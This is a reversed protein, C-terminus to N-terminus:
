TESWPVLPGFTALAVGLMINGFLQIQLHYAPSLVPCLTEAGEDGKDNGSLWLYM